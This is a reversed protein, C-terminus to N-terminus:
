DSRVHLKCVAQQQLREAMLPFRAVMALLPTMPLLCPEMLFIQEGSYTNNGTLVLTGVGVKTLSSGTGDTLVSDIRTTVGASVNITGGAAVGFELTGGDLVYGDTNFQLTDFSQSGAITVTGAAGQFVGVSGLWISNFGGPGPHRDLQHWREVLSGFWWQWQWTRGFWGLM